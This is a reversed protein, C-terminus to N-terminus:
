SQVQVLEAYRGAQGLLEEHNGQEVIKGEELVLIQDASRITSLRHAIVFTTRGQMLRQMSQQVLRETATDLASTAEDLILIRPDKLILRAIAIRQRQGGSLTIGREGVRTNYGDPLSAIFDHINALRAAEEIEERTAKNRSFSINDAITGYFLFTEQFVIGISARLADMKIRALPYGDVRIQGQQPDYFRPILSVLTSKGSGTSGVLAVVKGAPVDLQINKVVPQDPEYGFTVHDFEVRGETVDIWQAGQADEIDPRVDFFEFVRQASALGRQIVDYFSGLRQFPQFFMNMLPLFSLVMGLSVNGTETLILLGGGVALLVMALDKTGYMVQHNVSFIRMADNVSQQYAENAEKIESRAQEEQGFAKIERIGSVQEQVAASIDAQRERQLRYLPRLRKRIRRVLLIIIPIPVLCFLFLVPSLSLLFVPVVFLLIAQYALDFSQKVMQEMQMVDGVARSIISGTRERHFFRLSLKHLHHVIHSKIDLLMRQLVHTRRRWMIVGITNALLIVLLILVFYVGTFFFKDGTTQVHSTPDVHWGLISVPRPDIVMDFYYRLSMAPLLNLLANLFHLIYINRLPKKYPKLYFFFRRLLSADSLEQRRTANDPSM